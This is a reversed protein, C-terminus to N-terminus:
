NSTQQLAREPEGPKPSPVPVSPTPPPALVKVPPMNPAYLEDTIRLKEDHGDLRIRYIETNELVRQVYNRTENFPIEEVWDIPDVTPSRPDGFATIWRKVNTPGANYAAAALVLSNGWDSLYGSFEAMGLRINYGPNTTLDNPRYPLNGQRAIRRLEGPMIQMIGRAGAHSVSAPDFETEQRILGLVLAKEPTGAPIPIVPYAFPLLRIGAYSAEKAVRVAVDRNDWDTLAEALLKVHEADPHREQYYLAFRRLDNEEGLDALVRMARVLEDKDFAARPPLPGVPTNSLHLVPDANIRTLAIMGYYTDPAKAAENYAQWASATDGLEEYTRGEWYYARALSIPRSVGHELKQFHVLAAQPQHLFRLAIWGALFEAEAFEEGATLGTDSVLGYATKADGDELAQRADLNLEDWVRTPEIRTLEALPAHLLLAEARKDDGSHRVARAWDYRLAPDALLEPPLTEIIRKEASADDRLAIRAQGLKQASDGVRAIERRASAIDERWILSELRKRDVDPMLMAGDQEVIALEQAADFSGEIWGERILDRGRDLHGTAILAEGLRIKGAASIPDRGAFWALVTSPPTAPDLAEEARATLTDRWPWEPHSNLFADIEAFGTGSNKDLLYRWVILERAVGDDGQAAFVKASAWDGRDAADFAKQFIDRDAASLVHTATTRPEAPGAGEDTPQDPIPQMSIVGGQQQLGPPLAQGGAAPALLLVIVLVILHPRMSGDRHSGARVGAM